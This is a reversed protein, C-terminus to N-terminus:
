TRAMMAGTGGAAGGTTRRDRTVLRQEEFAAFIGRDAPPLDKVAVESRIAQGDEDIEVLRLYANVAAAEDLHLDARISTTAAEAWRKIIDAVPGVEEYREPTIKAPHERTHGRTLEELLAALLPLARGDGTADLITDVVEPPEFRIGALEAPRVIVERLGALDLPKVWIPDDPTLDALAENRLWPELSASRLAVIIALRDRDIADLRGALDVLQDSPTRSVLDEAQDIFLVVRATGSAVLQDVARAIGKEDAAISGAEIGADVHRFAAAIRGFPDDGAEVVPLVIMGPRRQLRRLVGARILSSKGCGSPGVVLVSRAKPDALRNLILTREADRGFLIAADNETLRRLGPYPSVNPDWGDSDESSYGMATLGHVLQDALAALADAPGIAQRDRLLSHTAVAEKNIQVIYRGRVVAYALETQCWSSAISAASGLFVVVDAREVNVFLESLWNAGPPIGTGPDKDRFIAIYGRSKLLSKIQIADAADASSYSLFIATM